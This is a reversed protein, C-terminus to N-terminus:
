GKQAKHKDWAKGLLYIAGFMAGYYLMAPVAGFTVNRLLTVKIAAAVLICGIWIVAKM